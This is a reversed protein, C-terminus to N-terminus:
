TPNEILADSEAIPQGSNGGSMYIHRRRPLLGLVTGFLVHSWMLHGQVGYIIIYPSVLQWLYRDCLMFLAIAYTVGAGSPGTFGSFTGTITEDVATANRWAPAVIVSEGPELM